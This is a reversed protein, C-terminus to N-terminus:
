DSFAILARLAGIIAARMQSHRVLAEEDLGSGLLGFTICAEPIIRASMTELIERLSAQAITARPSANFLGVPKSVFSDNAVMWDLANKMVGSVGHAYEPSAIVVAQATVIRTYLDSVAPHELADLDPNFLPLAGLGRYVEVDVGAPALRASARLLMSNLSAARLSGSLALIKPIPM